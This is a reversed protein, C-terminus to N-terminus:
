IHGLKNIPLGTSLQIGNMFDTLLIMLINHDYIFTLIMSSNICKYIEKGLVTGSFLMLVICGIWILLISQLGGLILGATKDMQKIVPLKSIIDLMKALIFVGMRIIIYLVLFSIGRIIMVAIYKGLYGEFNKVLLNSYVEKNNNEMIQKKINNPLPLEEIKKNQEKKSKIADEKKGEKDIGVASSVANSISSVLKENSCLINSVMPNCISTIILALITSCVLFISKIVGLKWGRYCFIGIFLIVILLLWNM